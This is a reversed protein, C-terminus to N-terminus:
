NEKQWYDGITLRAGVGCNLLVPQILGFCNSTFRSVATFHRGIRIDPQNHYFPPRVVFMRGIILWTSDFKLHALFCWWLSEILRQFNWLRRMFSRLIGIM